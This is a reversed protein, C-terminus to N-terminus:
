SNVVLNLGAAAASILTLTQFLDINIKSIINKGLIAGLAVTPIASLIYRWSDVNLLGLALTFPLKSANLIFFFRANNGLFNMASNRQLLLYISLPAGGANAIMIMFGSMSGLTIRLLKPSRFTHSEENKQFRQTLPFVAVLGIIICGITRELLIDSAKALFFVGVLVGCLVPWILKRLVRWEVHKKYINIAFFDGVLLLILLVGTSEKVPLINALLAASVLGMGGIATKAIGVLLGVLALTLTLSIDM